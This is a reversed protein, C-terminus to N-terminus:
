RRSRLTTLRAVERNTRLDTLIAQIQELDVAALFVTLDVSYSANAAAAQDYIRNGNFALLSDYPQASLDEMVTELFVTARSTKQATKVASISTWFGGAAAVLITCVITLAITVEIVTM